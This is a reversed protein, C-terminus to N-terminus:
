FIEHVAIAIHTVKHAIVLAGLFVREYARYPDIITIHAKARAIYVLLALLVSAEIGAGSILDSVFRKVRLRENAGAVSCMAFDVLEITNEVVHEVAPTLREHLKSCHFQSSIHEGVLSDNVPAHVLELLTPSHRSCEM